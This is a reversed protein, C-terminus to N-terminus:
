EKEEEGAENAQNGEDVWRHCYRCVTAETLIGKGCFLCKKKDAANYDVELIEDIIFQSCHPCIM